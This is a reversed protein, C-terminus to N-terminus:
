PSFLHSAVKPVIMLSSRETDTSCADPHCNLLHRPSLLFLKSLTLEFVAITPNCCHTFPPPPLPWPLAPPPFSGGPSPPRQLDPYMIALRLPCVSSPDTCPSVHGQSHVSALSGPAESLRDPVDRELARTLLMTNTVQFRWPM